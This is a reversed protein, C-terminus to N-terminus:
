NHYNHDASDHYHYDPDLYHDNASSEYIYYDAEASQDADFWSGCM